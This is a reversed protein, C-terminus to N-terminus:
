KASPRQGGTTTRLIAGWVGVATCTDADPVSVGYLVDHTGSNRLTWTTGGDIARLITGVAGVVTGTNADTFSVGFLANSTGSDPKCISFV